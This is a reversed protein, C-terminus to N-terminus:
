RPKQLNKEGGINIFGHVLLRKPLSVGIGLLIAPWIIAHFRLIDKGVVQVDAPWYEQWSADDPYGLVTIYNSLADLWVYM